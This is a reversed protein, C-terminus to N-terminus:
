SGVSSYNRIAFRWFLSAATVWGVALVVGVVAWWLSMKGVLIGAPVTSMFAMPVIWYLIFSYQGWIDAPYKSVSFLPNAVHDLYAETTWFSLSNIMVYVSYVIGLGAVFAISAGLVNEVGVSVGSGVVQIVVLFLGVLFDAFRSVDIDFFSVMFMSSVPKVLITDLTGLRVRQELLTLSQKFLMWALGNAMYYMGLVIIMESRSWGALEDVYQYPLTLVFVMVLVMLLMGILRFIM